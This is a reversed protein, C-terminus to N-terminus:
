EHLAKCLIRKCVICPSQELAKTEKSLSPARRLTQFHITALKQEYFPLQASDSYVGSAGGVKCLGPGVGKPEAGQEPWAQYTILSVELLQAAVYFKLVRM